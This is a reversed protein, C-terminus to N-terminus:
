KTYFNLKKITKIAWLKKSKGLASNKQTKLQKYLKFFYLILLKNM